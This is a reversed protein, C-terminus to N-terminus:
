FPVVREYTYPSSDDDTTQYGYQITMNSFHVFTPPNIISAIPLFFSESKMILTVWIEEESIRQVEGAIDGLLLVEQKWISPYANYMPDAENYPNPVVIKFIHKKAQSRFQYALVVLVSAENM